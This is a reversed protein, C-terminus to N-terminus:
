IGLKINVSEARVILTTLVVLGDVIVSAVLIGKFV